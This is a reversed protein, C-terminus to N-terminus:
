MKTEIWRIMSNLDKIGADIIQELGVSLKQNQELQDRRSQM